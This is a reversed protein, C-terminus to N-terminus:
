VPYICIDTPVRHTRQDYKIINIYGRFISLKITLFIPLTRTRFFRHLTINVRNQRSIYVIIKIAEQYNILIYWV